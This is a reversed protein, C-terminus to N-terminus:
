NAGYGGKQWPLCSKKDNLCKEIHTNGPRPAQFFVHALQLSLGLLYLHDMMSIGLTEGKQSRSGLWARVNWSTQGMEWQDEVRHESCIGSIAGARPAREQQGTETRMNTWGPRRRRCGKNAWVAGVRDDLTVDRMM